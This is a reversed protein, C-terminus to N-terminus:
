LALMQQTLDQKQFLLIQLRKQDGTKEAQVIEGQLARLQNLLSSKWLADLCDRAETVTPEPIEQMLAQTLFIKLKPDLHQAIEDLRLERGEQFAIQLLHFIPETSLGAFQTERVEALIDSTLRPYKILIQLLMKEAPLIITEVEKVIGSLKLKLRHRLDDESTKLLQAAQTLYENLVVTDPIKALEALVENVLGAKEEPVALNRGHGRMTILFKLAPVAKALRGRYGDPGYKAMFSDPDLKEPLVVVSAPAGKEFCISLARLAANLGAADGDYNIIIRPAFRQALSVQLSTLSTGLSAVVHTFGAQFLAAFDTYGEVLILENKDRIADKTLNLGYLIKGKSYLPTEPSNLYKPEAGVLTRGGFAIVKGTLGFIPFMLRGRFRDYFGEKKQGPLVLGAKLLLDASVGRSQFHNVLSDWSNPAYGIKLAKVTEPSINRQAIYEQAKRGEAGEGLSKQFFALTEENIKVLKEELKITQSTLQSQQPLPINYKQALHKLAEPFTLNEKEMVLTFVDGGVGCGFCHYLQKDPDVTFSPTKEVHFPCLGVFKAGRKKLATYQSAIDVLAAVGRIQDIIEM